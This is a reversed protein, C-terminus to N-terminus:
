TIMYKLVEKAPLITKEGLLGGYTTRLTPTACFLIPTADLLLVTEFM